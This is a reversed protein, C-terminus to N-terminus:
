TCRYRDNGLSYRCVYQCPPSICIDIMLWQTTVIIRICQYADSNSEPLIVLWSVIIQGFMVQNRAQSINSVKLFHDLKRKLSITSQMIPFGSLFCYIHLDRIYPIDWFPLQWAQALKFRLLQLFEKRCVSLFPLNPRQYRAVSTKLYLPSSTPFLFCLQFHLVHYTLNLQQQTRAWQQHEQNCYFFIKSLSVQKELDEQLEKIAYALTTRTDDVEDQMCAGAWCREFAFSFSSFSFFVHDSYHMPIHSYTAKFKEGSIWYTM